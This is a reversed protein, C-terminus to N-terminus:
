NDETANGCVRPSGDAGAPLALVAIRELLVCRLAPVISRLEDLRLVVANQLAQLYVCFGSDDFAYDLSALLDEAVVLIRPAIQGSRRVYATHTLSEKADAVSALASKLLGLNEGLLVREDIAFYNRKLPAEIAAFLLQLKQSLDNLRQLYHPSSDVRPLWTMSDACKAARASLFENRLGGAVKKGSFTGTSYRELIAIHEPM